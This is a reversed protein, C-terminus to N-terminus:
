KSTNSQSDKIDCGQQYHEAFRLALQKRMTYLNWKMVAIIRELGHM